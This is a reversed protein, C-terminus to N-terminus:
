YRQRASPYVYRQISSLSCRRGRRPSNRIQVWYGQVDAVAQCLLLPVYGGFFMKFGSWDKMGRKEAKKEDGQDVVGVCWSGWLTKMHDM